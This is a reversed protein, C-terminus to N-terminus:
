GGSHILPVIARGYLFYLVVGAALVIAIISWLVARRIPVREEPPRPQPSTM